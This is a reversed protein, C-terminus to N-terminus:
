EFTKDVGEVVALRVILAPFGDCVNFRQLKLQGRKLSCTKVTCTKLIINEM